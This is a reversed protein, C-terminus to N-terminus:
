DVDFKGVKYKLWAVLAMGHKIQGSVIHTEVEEASLYCVSIKELPEFSPEDKNYCKAYYLYCKENSVGVTPYYDGLFSIESAQLGTEEVLERRAAIEPNEGSDIGGGPIELNNEKISHRYQNIFVFKENYKALVAVSDKMNVYSYPYEKNEKEITDLIITFRGLSINESKVIDYESM